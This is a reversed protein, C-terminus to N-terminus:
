GIESATGVVSCTGIIQAISGLSEWCGTNATSGCSPFRVPTSPPGSSLPSCVVSRFTSCIMRHFIFPSSNPLAKMPPLIWASTAYGNRCRPVWDESQFSSPIKEINRVVPESIGKLVELSDSLRWRECCFRGSVPTFPSVPTIVMFSPSAFGFKGASYSFSSSATQSPSRSIRAPTSRPAFNLMSPLSSSFTVYTHVWFRGFFVSPPIPSHVGFNSSTCASGLRHSSRLAEVMSGARFPAPPLPFM